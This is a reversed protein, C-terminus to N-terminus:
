LWLNSKMTVPFTYLVLLVKTKKERGKSGDGKDGIAGYERTFRPNGITWKYACRLEFRRRRKFSSKMQRMISFYRAHQNGFADGDDCTPSKTKM